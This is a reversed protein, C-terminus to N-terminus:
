MNTVDYQDARNIKIKVSSGGPLANLVPVAISTCSFLTPLFESVTHYRQTFYNNVNETISSVSRRMRGRYLLQTDKMIVLNEPAM